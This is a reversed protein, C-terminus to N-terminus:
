ENLHKLYAPMLISDVLLESYDNDSKFHVGEKIRSKGVLKALRSFEEECEPKFHSCIRAALFGAATHGSPYSPTNATGKHQMKKNFNIKVNHYDSVQYPRARKYFMKARMIFVNLDKMVAEIDFLEYANEGYVKEYFDTIIKDPEDDCKKLLTESPKWNDQVYKISILEDKTAISSNKAPFIIPIKDFDINLVKFSHSAQEALEERTAEYTIKDVDSAKIKSTFDIEM